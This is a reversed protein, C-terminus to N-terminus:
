MWLGAPGPFVVPPRCGRRVLLNSRIVHVRSGGPIKGHDDDGRDEPPNHDYRCPVEEELPASWRRWRKEYEQSVAPLVQLTDCRCLDIGIIEAPMAPPFLNLCEGGTVAGGGCAGPTVPHLDHLLCM